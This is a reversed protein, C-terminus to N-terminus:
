EKNWLLILCCHGVQFLLAFAVVTWDTLIWIVFLFFAELMLIQVATM